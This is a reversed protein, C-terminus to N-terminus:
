DFHDLCKCFQITPLVQSACNSHVGYVSSMGLLNDHLHLLHSLLTSFSFVVMFVLHDIFFLILEDFCMSIIYFGKCGPIM